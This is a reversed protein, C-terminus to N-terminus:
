GSVTSFDLGYYKTVPKRHRGVWDWWPPITGTPTDPTSEPSPATDAPTDGSSNEDVPSAEEAPADASPPEDNDAATDTVSDSPAATDRAPAEETSTDDHAVTEPQDPESM